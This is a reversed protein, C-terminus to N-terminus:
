GSGRAIPNCRRAVGGRTKSAVAPRPRSQRSSARRPQSTGAHSCFAARADSSKTLGKSCGTKGTLSVSRITSIRRAEDESYAAYIYGNHGNIFSAYGKNWTIWTTTKDCGCRCKGPGGNLSDWIEQSTKNHSEVFHSELSTLRKSSFNLCVPCTHAQLAKGKITGM